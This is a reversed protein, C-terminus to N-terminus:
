WAIRALFSKPYTRVIFKRIEDVLLIGLGLPIPILWFEIPVSETDFLNQIGPVETVFIAICLSILM